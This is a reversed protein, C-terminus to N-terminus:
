KARPTLIAGSQENLTVTTCATSGRSDKRHARAVIRERLSQRRWQDIVLLAVLAFVMAAVSIPVLLDAMYAKKKLFKEALKNTSVLATRPFSTIGAHGISATSFQFCTTRLTWDSRSYRM